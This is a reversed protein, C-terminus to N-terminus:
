RNWCDPNNDYIPRIRQNNDLGSDRSDNNNVEEILKIPAVSEIRSLIGPFYLKISDIMENFDLIRNILFVSNSNGRDDVSYDHMALATWGDLYHLAAASQEKTTRPTLKCDVQGWPGIPNM